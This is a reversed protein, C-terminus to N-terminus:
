ADSRNSPKLDLLPEASQVIHIDTFNDAPAPSTTAWELTQGNWPDDGVTEGKAFSRLALALFAFVSLLVLAHGVLSLTNWLQAPGSYDFQVVGDVGAEVPPFVGGPQDAFGAIMMPVAALVAGVFGLLALPATAKLPMSRGWLKPGWYAAAGMGALVTAYVIALWTGEEFTTGVLGADAIHNLASGATGLLALLAALLGFLLPASVTPKKRLSQATLALALFAGLLPLVHVLVYPLLDSVKDNGSLGSFGTRIVVPAQVAAGYLATGVLAIAAFITGRPTLRTRIGTAVTDALLGFVPIAFIITTPQTFGFAGWQSIAQNGSLESLSQYKHAIFLVLLNGVVIPLAVLLALGSVLVSWSFWPVRRMNMGPARTTLISTTLSVVTLLLGLIALGAALNFLDVFRPNGGNPGGNAAIAVISAVAGTLWTWFGTTALRPFAVARAGLQLPVVCLAAGIMLPLAVMYTLGFRYISFLQTLSEVPLVTGDTSIRELALLGAVVIAGLASLAAAGLYLRGVKKHDTSTVWSAVGALGAGAPAAASTAHTDITTM